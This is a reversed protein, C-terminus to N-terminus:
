PAVGESSSSRARRDVRLSNLVVILSSGAMGIGAAWPPFWGLAALPLCTANYAIAWALNQRVIRLARRAVERAWPIDALSGSMLTIDAKSRTLAMGEGMALSVDARAMVPADNLGDGVMAVRRGRAHLAAVVEVKGAPTAGGIAQAIGLRGAVAAVREPADGSLLVVDIGAGRLTDVVSRADDRLAEDPLFRALLTGQVGLWTGTEASTSDGEAVWARSGLRFRRGDGAVGEVGLGAHERAERWEFNADGASAAAIAAAVPHASLRALSAARALVAGEDFGADRSGPHLEVRVAGATPRTLTGTKDFCVTDIRALAELADLRQVLVGRRSLAGAAALLASPAALSLACPCTVILVSVAVWVARSPDIVSWTGAALAALLLVAWLFPGAVRDAARLMAPRDLLAGRMLAVIGAYRTEDGLREAVQVVAGSLNISGAIAVDGPKKAVPRSEGTLLAEDVETAGDVLPGDAAFAEGALIRLRDGRRLQSPAVITTSGDANLRRVTAPTRDLAGELTAAVRNRMRLTLYRGVLLFSVFMTLSDFYAEHGFVGAPDFTAGTSVVFTVVIGIVVPVDMGIRRQRLSAWADRFLPAASFMVVPITLLWAAWLLLQRLDPALTGPAAFYLPAQYMMVQMMAFGAVFLRWLMRRTEAQRLARAPAAADPAAGYGATTVAEILRALGTASPDWTVVARQTGYSVRAELVGPQADLTREVTAACGVCWLGALRLTTSCAVRGDTARALTVDM